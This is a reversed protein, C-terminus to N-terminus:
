SPAASRQELRSEVKGMRPTTGGADMCNDAIDNM